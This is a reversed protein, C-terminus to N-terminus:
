LYNYEKEVRTKGNVFERVRRIKDSDYRLYSYSGDKYVVCMCGVRSCKKVRRHSDYSVTWHNCRPCKEMGKGGNLNLFRIYFLKGGWSGGYLRPSILSMKM